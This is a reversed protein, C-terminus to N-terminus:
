SLRVQHYPHDTPETGPLHRIVRQPHVHPAGFTDLIPAIAHDPSSDARCTFLDIHAAHHEPWTSVILHSEGLVIVATTGHPVFQVPVVAHVTCGLRHVTNHMAELLTDAAPETTCGTLDYLVQIM